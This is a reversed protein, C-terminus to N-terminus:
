IICSRLRGALTIQFPEWLFGDDRASGNKTRLLPDEIFQRLMRGKAPSARM